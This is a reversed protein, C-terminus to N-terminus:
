AVELWTVSFLHGRTDCYTATATHESRVVVANDARLGCIPCIAPHPQGNDSTPTVIDMLRDTDKQDALGPTSSCSRGPRSTDTDEAGNCLRTGVAPLTKGCIGSRRETLDKV